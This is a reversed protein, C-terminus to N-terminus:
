IMSSTSSPMATSGSRPTQGPSSSHDPFSVKLFCVPPQSSTMCRTTPSRSPLRAKLFRVPQQRRQNRSGGRPSQRTAAHRRRGQRRTRAGRGSGSCGADARGAEHSGRGAAEVGQGREPKARAPTSEAGVPSPKQEMQRQSQELQKKVQVLLETVDDAAHVPIVWLLTARRQWSRGRSM